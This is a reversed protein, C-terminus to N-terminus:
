SMEQHTEHSNTSLLCEHNPSSLPTFNLPPSYIPLYTPLVGNSRFMWINNNHIIYRGTLIAETKGDMAQRERETSKRKKTRRGDCRGSRCRPLMPILICIELWGLRSLLPLLSYLRDVSRRGFTKVWGRRRRANPLFHNTLPEKRDPCPSLTM